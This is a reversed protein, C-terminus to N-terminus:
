ANHGYFFFITDPHFIITNQYLIRKFNYFNEKIKSQMRGRFNNKSLFTFSAPMVSFGQTTDWHTGAPRPLREDRRLQHAAQGRVLVDVVDDVKGGPGADVVGL